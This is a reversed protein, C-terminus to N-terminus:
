RSSSSKKSTQLDSWREVQTLGEPEDPPRPATRLYRVEAQRPLHRAAHPRDNSDLYCLGVFTADNRAFQANPRSTTM